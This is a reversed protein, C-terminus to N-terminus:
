LPCRLGEDGAQGQGLLLLRPKQPPRPGRRWPSERGPGPKRPPSLSSPSRKKPKTRRSSGGRGSTGSATALTKFAPTRTTITVPSWGAVARAMARLTPIGASTTAVPSSSSASESSSSKFTSTKARTLGSCFSLITSARCFAPSTTAMVPSPTFSAGARLRASTPTAMPWLPESTLRSTASRTSRSSLKAVMTAAMSSPRLM